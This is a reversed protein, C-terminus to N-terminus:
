IQVQMEFLDDNLKFAYYQSTKGGEKPVMEAYEVRENIKGDKSYFKFTHEIPFDESKYEFEVALKGLKKGKEDESLKQIKEADSDDMKILDFIIEEELNLLRIGWVKESEDGVFLDSELVDTDDYVGYMIGVEEGTIEKLKDFYEDILEKAGEFM